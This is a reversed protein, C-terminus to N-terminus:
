VDGWAGRWQGVGSLYKQWRGASRCEGGPPATLHVDIIANWQEDTM